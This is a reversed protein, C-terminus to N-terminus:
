ERSDGQKAEPLAALIAKIRDACVGEVAVGVRNYADADHIHDNSHKEMETALDSLKARLMREMEGSPPLRSIGAAIGLRLTNFEPGEHGCHVFQAAEELARSRVAANTGAISDRIKSLAAFAQSHKKGCDIEAEALAIGAEEVLEQLSLAAPPCKACDGWVYGHPCQDEVPGAASASPDALARIDEALEDIPRLHDYGLHENERLAIENDIVQAAREILEGRKAREAALQSQLDTIRSEL